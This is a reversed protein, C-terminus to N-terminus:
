RRVPAPALAGSAPLQGQQAMNSHDMGKGHVMEIVGCAIRPGSNGAPNTRYDDEGEHVVLSRGVISDPGPALTVDTHVHRMMGSGSSGVVLNPVDGAHIQRSSKGPQGHTHTGHPDFHGGAAGFAVLKGTAADPGPACEGQTHIHFGHPGPKMGQVQVTIEVGGGQLASLVAMGAPTGEPTKLAAQAVAMGSGTAMTGAGAQAGAHGGPHM